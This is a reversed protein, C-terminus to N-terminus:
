YNVAGVTGNRANSYFDTAPLSSDTYIYGTKLAPNNPKFTSTNFPVGSVGLGSLTQNGSSFLNGSNSAPWGTNGTGTGIPVDTV